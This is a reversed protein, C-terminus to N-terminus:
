HTNSKIIVESMSNLAIKVFHRGSFARSWLWVFRKKNSLHLYLKTASSDMPSQSSKFAKVVGWIRDSLKMVMYCSLQWSSIKYSNECKFSMDWCLVRLAALLTWDQLFLGRVLTKGSGEQTNIRWPGPLLSSLRCCKGWCLVSVMVRGQASTYKWTGKILKTWLPQSTWFVSPFLHCLHFTLRIGQSFLDLFLLLSLSTEQTVSEIVM